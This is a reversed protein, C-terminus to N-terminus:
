RAHFFGRPEHCNLVVCEHNPLIPRLSSFDKQVTIISVIDSLFGQYCVLTKIKKSITKDTFCGFCHCYFCFRIGMNGAIAIQPQREHVNGARKRSPLVSTMISPVASPTKVDYCYECPKCRLRVAQKLSIANIIHLCAKLGRCQYSHYAYAGASKCILVREDKVPFLYVLLALLFLKM